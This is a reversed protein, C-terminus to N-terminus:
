THEGKAHMTGMAELYKPEASVVAVAAASIPLTLVAPYLVTKWGPYRLPKELKFGQKEYFGKASDVALAYIPVGEGHLARLLAQGVGPVKATPDSAIM